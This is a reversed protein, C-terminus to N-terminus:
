SEAEPAEVGEDPTEEPKSPPEPPNNKIEGRTYTATTLEGISGYNKSIVKDDGRYMEWGIDGDYDFSNYASSTQNMHGTTLQLLPIDKIIDVSSKTGKSGGYGEELGISASHNEFIVKFGNTKFTKVASRIRKLNKKEIKHNILLNEEQLTNGILNDLDQKSMFKNDLYNKDAVPMNYSSVGDFYVVKKEDAEITVQDTLGKLTGIKGKINAISFSSDGLM